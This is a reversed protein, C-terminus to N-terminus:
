NKFIFLTLKLLIFGIIVGLIITVAIPLTKTLLVSLKYASYGLGLLGLIPFLLQWNHQIDWKTKFTDLM